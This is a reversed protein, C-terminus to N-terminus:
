KLGWKRLANEVQEEFGHSSFYITTYKEEDEGVVGITMSLDQFAFYAKKNSEHIPRCVQKAWDRRSAIQGSATSKKMEKEAKSQELREFQKRLKNGSLVQNCWFSDQPLYEIIEHVREPSKQDIRIIRDIEIGWADFSTPRKINPHALQISQYLKEALRLGEETAKSQKLEKGQSSLKKRKEKNKKNEQEDNNKRDVDHQNRSAIADNNCSGNSIPHKCSDQECHTSSKENVNVIANNNPLKRQEMYTEKPDINPDFLETSTLRAYTKQGKGEGRTEFEALGKEQLYKKATRYQADTLGCAKFSVRSEGLQSGCLNHSGDRNLTYAIFFLLRFANPKTRLLEFLMSSRMAKLFGESAKM